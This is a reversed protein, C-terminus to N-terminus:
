DQWSKPRSLRALFKPGLIMILVANELILSLADRDNMPGAEKMIETSSEFPYFKGFGASSLVHLTLTKMNEATSRVGKGGQTKWWERMDTAQRFSEDWVLKM